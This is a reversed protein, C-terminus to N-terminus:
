SNSTLSIRSLLFVHCAQHSFQMSERSIIALDMEAYLRGLRGPLEINGVHSFLSIASMGDLRREIRAFATNIAIRTTM